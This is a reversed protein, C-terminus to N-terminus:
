KIDIYYEFDDDSFHLAKLLDKINVTFTYSADKLFKILVVGNKNKVDEYGCERSLQVCKSAEDWSKSKFEMLNYQHETLRIKM